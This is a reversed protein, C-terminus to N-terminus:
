AYVQSASSGFKLYCCVHPASSTELHDAMGWVFPRTGASGLKPPQKRNIHEGKTVSCGFNVHYCMDPSVHIKPNAVGAMGLSCLELALKPPEGTNIGVDQLASHGFCPTKPDAVGNCKCLHTV